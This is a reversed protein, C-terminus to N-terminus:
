TFVTAIAAAGKLGGAIFDGTEATKEASAAINAAQQMNTYSAAQEQYGQETILGQQGLVAQQMAGQQASSRLLDLASGSAAFGAGAVDAQQGSITRYSEREAQAEQIATSTAAYQEEESAYGAALGYNQAEIQDGQAKSAAGFGAFIDSVAGGADSFTAGGLAM